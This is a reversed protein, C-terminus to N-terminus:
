EAVEELVNAAKLEQVLAVVDKEISSRPPGELETALFHAIEALTRSGDCLELIASATPNLVM